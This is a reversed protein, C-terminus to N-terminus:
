RLGNWSKLSALWSVPSEMASETCRHYLFLHSLNNPNYNSLNPCSKKKKKKKGQRRPLHLEQRIITGCREYRLISIWRADRCSHVSGASSLSTFTQLIRSTYARKSPNLNVTRCLIQSNSRIWFPRRTQVNNLGLLQCFDYFKQIWRRIIEDTKQNNKFFKMSKSFSKFSKSSFTCLM